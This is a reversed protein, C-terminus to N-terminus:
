FCNQIQFSTTHLHKWAHVDAKHSSSVLILVQYKILLSPNPYFPRVLWGAKSSGPRELGDKTWLYYILQIHVHLDRNVCEWRWGGWRCWSQKEAFRVEQNENLKPRKQKELVFWRTRRKSDKPGGDAESKSASLFGKPYRRRRGVPLFIQTHTAYKMEFHALCHQDWEGGEASASRSSKPVWISATSSQVFSAKHGLFTARQWFM